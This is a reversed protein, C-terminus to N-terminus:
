PPIPLVTYARGGRLTGAVPVALRSPSVTLTPFAAVFWFMPIGAGALYEAAAPEPNLCATRIISLTESKSVIGTATM